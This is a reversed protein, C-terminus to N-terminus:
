VCAPWLFRVASTAQCKSYSCAGLGDFGLFLFNSHTIYRKMFFRNRM